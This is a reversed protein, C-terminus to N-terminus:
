RRAPDLNVGVGSTLEPQPSDMLLEPNLWVLQAETLGFRRSVTYVTDYRNPIYYALVAGDTVTRGRAYSRAGHDVPKLGPFASPLTWTIAAAAMVRGDGAPSEEISHIFTPDGFSAHDVLVPLVLEGDPAVSQAGSTVPFFSPDQVNEPLGDHRKGTLMLDIGTLARTAAADPRIRVEIGRDPRVVIRVSGTVPHEAVPNAIPEHDIVRLVGTGITQGAALLNPLQQAIPETDKTVAQAAPTSHAPPASLACGSMLGVVCVAVAAAAVRGIGWGIM